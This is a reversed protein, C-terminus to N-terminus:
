MPAFLVRWTVPTEGWNLTALEAKQNLITVLMALDDSVEDHHITTISHRTLALQGEDNVAVVNVSHATGTLVACITGDDREVLGNIATMRRGDNHQDRCLITGNPQTAATAATIVANRAAAIAALKNNSANM